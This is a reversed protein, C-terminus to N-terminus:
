YVKALMDGSMDPYTTLGNRGIALYFSNLVFPKHLHRWNVRNLLLINSYKPGVDRSHAVTIHPVANKISLPMSPRVVVAFCFEDAVWDTVTLQVEEGFYNTAATIDSQSPKPPLVTMHHAKVLWGPRRWSVGETEMMMQECQALLEEQSFKNLVCATYIIEKADPAPKPEMNEKLEIWKTFKM